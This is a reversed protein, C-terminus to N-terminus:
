GGTQLITEAEALWHSAWGGLRQHLHQLDPLYKRALYSHIEAPIAIKNSVNFRNELTKTHLRRTSDVGLFALINRIYQEPNRQVDDYFGIHLSEAPFCSTWNNLTRRYDSRMTQEASEIHQYVPQLQDPNIQKLDYRAQSWAREIPNRLILIIKTTPFNKQIHAVDEQNLISYAPTIEGKVKGEGEAFLSRYWVDDYTGLYYRLYWPHIKKSRM